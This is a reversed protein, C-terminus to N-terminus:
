WRSGRQYRRWYRRSYFRFPQVKQGFIVRMSFITAAILLALILLPFIVIGLVVSIVGLLVVGVILLLKILGIAAIALLVLIILSRHNNKQPRAWPPVGQGQQGSANNKSYINGDPASYQYDPGPSVPQNHQAYAQQASPEQAAYDQAQYGRGMVLDDDEVPEDKPMGAGKGSNNTQPQTSWYYPQKEELDEEPQQGQFFEQQSM